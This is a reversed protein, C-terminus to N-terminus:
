SFPNRIGDFMALKKTREEPQLMAVEDFSMSAFAGIDQVAQWLRAYEHRGTDKRVADVVTRDPFAAKLLELDQLVGRAARHYDSSLRQHEIRATQLDSGKSQAFENLIATLRLYNSEVAQCHGRMANVQVTFNRKNEKWDEFWKKAGQGIWGGL